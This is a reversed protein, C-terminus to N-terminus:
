KELLLVRALLAVELELALLRALLAAELKDVKLLEFAELSRLRDLLEDEDIFCVEESLSLLPEDLSEEFELLM